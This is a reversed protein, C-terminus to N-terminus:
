PAGRRARQRQLRRRHRLSVQLQRLALVGLGALAATWALTRWWGHSAGAGDHTPRPAGEGQRTEVVAKRPRAASAPVPPSTLTSRPQALPTPPAAAASQNVQQGAILKPLVERGVRRGVGQAGAVGVHETVIGVVCPAGAVGRIIVLDNEVETLWGSKHAIAGPTGALLSTHTGREMYSLMARAQRRTIGWEALVGKDDRDLVAVAAALLRLDRASTFKGSPGPGDRYPGDLVTDTMGLLAFLSNVRQTGASTSGGGALAILNNAATNSSESLMARMAPSTVVAPDARVAALAIGLKLTSAARIRRRDGAGVPRGSACQASVGVLAPSQTVIRQVAFQAPTPTAAAAPAVAAVAMAAAAACWRLM